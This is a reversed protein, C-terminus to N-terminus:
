KRFIFTFLYAPCFCSHFMFKHLLLISKHLLSDSGINSQPTLPSGFICRAHVARRPLHACLLLRSRLKVAQYCCSLLCMVLRCEFSMQSLPPLLVVAFAGSCFVFNPLKSVWFSFIQLFRDSKSLLQMAAYSFLSNQTKKQLVQKTVNTCFLSTECEKRREIIQVPCLRAVTEHPTINM